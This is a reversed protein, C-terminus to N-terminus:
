EYERVKVQICGMCGMYHEIGCVHKPDDDEIIIGKMADEIMKGMYAHNSIDMRDDWRFTIIVPKEFPKTIGAKRIAQRTLAHWYEADKRRKSWHKGAYIANMGYEKNWLAKLKPNDPYPIYFTCIM